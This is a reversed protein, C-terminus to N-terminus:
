RGLVTLEGDMVHVELLARVVYSCDHENPREHEDRHRGARLHYTPQPDPQM